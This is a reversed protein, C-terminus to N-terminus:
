NILRRNRHFAMRLVLPEVPGFLVMAKYEEVFSFGEVQSIKDGLMGPAFFSEDIVDILVDCVNNEFDVRM